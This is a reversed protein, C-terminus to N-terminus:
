RCPHLEHVIECLFQHIQYCGFEFLLLCFIVDAHMTFHLGFPDSKIFHRWLCKMEVNTEYIMLKQAHVNWCEETSKDHACVFWVILVARLWMCQKMLRIKRYINAYKISSGPPASWWIFFVFLLLKGMRDNFILQTIWWLKYIHLTLREQMITRRLDVM